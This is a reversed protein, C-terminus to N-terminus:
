ESGGYSTPIAALGRHGRARSYPWQEVRPGDEADGEHSSRAKDLIYGHDIDFRDCTHLLDSILDSIDCILGHNEDGRDQQYNRDTNEAVAKFGRDARKENPNRETM